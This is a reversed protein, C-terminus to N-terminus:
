GHLAVAFLIEMHQQGTSRSLAFSASLLAICHMPLLLGALCSFKQPPCSCSMPLAFLHDM